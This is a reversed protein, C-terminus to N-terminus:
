FKESHEHFAGKGYDQFRRFFTLSTVMMSQTEKDNCTNQHRACKGFRFHVGAELAFINELFIIFKM